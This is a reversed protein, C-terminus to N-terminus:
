KRRKYPDAANVDPANEDAIDVQGRKDHPLNQVKAKSVGAIGLKTIANQYHRTIMQRSVGAEKSAKTFNGDHKSVLTYAQYQAETFPVAKSPPTRRRKRVPRISIAALMRRIHTRAEENRTRAHIIFQPKGGFWTEGDPGEEIITKLFLPAPIMTEILHIMEFWEHSLKEWPAHGFARFSWTKPRKGLNFAEIENLKQMFWDLYRTLLQKQPRTLSDLHANFFQSRM